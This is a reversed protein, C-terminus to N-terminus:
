NGYYHYPIYNANVIQNYNVACGMSDVIKEFFYQGNNLYFNTANNYTTFSLYQNNFYYYYTFPKNGQPTVFQVFVKDSDCSIAAPAMSSTLKPYNIIITDNIAKSCKADNISLITYNGDGLLIELNPQNTNKQYTIGNGNNKYTITYPADGSCVYSILM